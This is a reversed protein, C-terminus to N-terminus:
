LYSREQRKSTNFRHPTVRCDAKVFDCRRGLLLLSKVDAASHVSPCSFRVNCHITQGSIYSSDPSALFVCCTAVEVPQGPRGLPPANVGKVNDSSFTSPVLPTWVPGSLAFNLFYEASGLHLARHLLSVARDLQGPDAERRCSPEVARKHLQCHCGTMTHGTLHGIEHNIMLHVYKRRLTTWCTLAGSSPRRFLPQLVVLRAPSCTLERQHLM